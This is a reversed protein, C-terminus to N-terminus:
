AKEYWGGRGMVEPDTMDFLYWGYYATHRSIYDVSRVTLGHHDTTLVSGGGGHIDVGAHGYPHATLFFHVAGVPAREPRTDVVVTRRLHEVSPAMPAVGLRYLMSGEWGAWSESVFDRYPHTTAWGMIEEPTIM